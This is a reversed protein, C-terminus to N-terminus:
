TLTRGGQLDVLWTMTKRRRKKEKVNESEIKIDSEPAVLIV